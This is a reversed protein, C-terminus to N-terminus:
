AYFRHAFNLMVAQGDCSMHGDCPMYGDCSAHLGNLVLSLARMDYRADNTPSAMQM